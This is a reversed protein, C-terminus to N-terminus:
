SAVSACRAARRRRASCRARQRRRQIRDRDRRVALDDGAAGVSLQIEEDGAPSTSPLRCADGVGTIASAIEGSPVRTAAAPMRPETAIMSRAVRVTVCVKTPGPRGTHDTANKGSLRVSNVPPASRVSRRQFASVPSGM